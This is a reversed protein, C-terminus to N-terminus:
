NKLIEKDKNYFAYSTLNVMLSVYSAVMGAVHMGFIRMGVLPSRTGM